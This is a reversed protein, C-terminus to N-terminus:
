DKPFDSKECKVENTVWGNPVPVSKSVLFDPPSGFYGGAIPTVGDFVDSAEAMLRQAM